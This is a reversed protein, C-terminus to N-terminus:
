FSFRKALAEYNMGYLTAIEEISAGFSRSSSLHMNIKRPFAAAMRTQAYKM